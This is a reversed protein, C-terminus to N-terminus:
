KRGHSQTQRNEADYTLTYTGFTTQNGAADYSGSSMRNASSYVDSTPTGGDLQVGSNATVWMIPFRGERRIRRRM